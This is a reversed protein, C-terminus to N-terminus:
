IAHLWDRPRVLLQSPDASAMRQRAKRNTQEAEAVYPGKEDSSM